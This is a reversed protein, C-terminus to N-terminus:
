RRDGCDIMRAETIVVDVTEDEPDAPVEDVVQVEFCLGVRRARRPVAALFSDYFGGGYGLRRGAADFAVGPVLVVDVDPDVAERAVPERIGRYGPALDELSRIEAARLESGEVWPVLVRIGMALLREVLADTPVESGFSAYALVSAAGRVEPLALLREAVSDGLARREEPSLRSRRTLATRRVVQKHHKDYM